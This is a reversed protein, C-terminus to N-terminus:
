FEKKQESTFVDPNWTHTGLIASIEDHILEYLLRGKVINEITHIKQDRFFVTTNNENQIVRISPSLDKEFIIKSTTTGM